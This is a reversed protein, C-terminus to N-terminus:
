EADAILAVDGDAPDFNVERAIDTPVNAKIEGTQGNYTWGIDAAGVETLPLAGATDITDGSGPM